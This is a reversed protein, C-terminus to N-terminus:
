KGKKPKRLAALRDKQEQTIAGDLATKLADDVKRITARQEPTLVEEARKTLETQAKQVEQKFQAQRDKDVPEGKKPMLALVASSRVTDQVAQNLKAKQEDTLLLVAEINPEAAYALPSFVNLRPLPPAKAKKEQAWGPATCVALVLTLSFLARSKM